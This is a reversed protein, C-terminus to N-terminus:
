IINNFEFHVKGSAFVDTELMVFQDTFYLGLVVPKQARLVFHLYIHSRVYLFLIIFSIWCTQAHYLHGGGIPSFYSFAALASSPQGGTALVKHGVEHFVDKFVPNADNRIGALDSVGLAVIPLWDLYSGVIDPLPNKFNVIVFDLQSLVWGLFINLCISLEFLKLSVPWFFPKLQALLYVAHLGLVRNVDMVFPLAVIAVMLFAFIKLIWVQVEPFSGFVLEPVKIFAFPLKLVKIRDFLLNFVRSLSIKGSAVLQSYKRPGLEDNSVLSVGFNLVFVNRQKVFWAM